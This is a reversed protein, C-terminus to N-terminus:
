YLADKSILPREIICSFPMGEGADTPESRARKASPEGLEERSEERSEERPEM